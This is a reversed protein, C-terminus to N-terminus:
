ETGNDPNQTDAGQTDTNQNGSDTGPDTGGGTPAETGPATTPETTPETTPGTTPGTTPEGTRDTTATGDDAPDVSSAPAPAPGPQDSDSGTFLSSITFRNGTEGRTAGEVSGGSVAEALTLTGMALVFLAGAVMAVRAWRIRRSPPHPAESPAEDEAAAVPPTGVAAPATTFSSQLKTRGHHIWRHYLETGVSSILSAVAAGVLTGAVGLFSGIVAASVAALVGAITKPIDIGSRIRGPAHETM